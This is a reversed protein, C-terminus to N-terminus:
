LSAAQWLALSLISIIAATKQLRTARASLVLGNTPLHPLHQTESAQL